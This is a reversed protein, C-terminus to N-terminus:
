EYATARLCKIAPRIGSKCNRRWKVCARTRIDRHIIRGSACVSRVDEYDSEDTGSQKRGAM